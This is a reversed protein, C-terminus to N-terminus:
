HAAGSLKYFYNRASSFKKRRWIHLNTDLTRGKALAAQLLPTLHYNYASATRDDISGDVEEPIIIIYIM